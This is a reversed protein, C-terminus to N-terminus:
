VAPDAGRQAGNWFPGWPLKIQEGPIQEQPSNSARWRLKRVFLRKRIEERAAAAHLESSGDYLLCTGGAASLLEVNVAHGGGYADSM